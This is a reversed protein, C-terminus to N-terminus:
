NVRSDKDMRNHLGTIYQEVDSVENKDTYFIIKYKEKM